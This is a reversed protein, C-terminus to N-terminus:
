LDEYEFGGGECRPHEKLRKIPYVTNNILSIENSRPMQVRFEGIPYDYPVARNERVLRDDIRVVASMLSNYSIIDVVNEVARTNLQFRLHENMMQFNEPLKMRVLRAAIRGLITVDWKTFGGRGQWQGELGECSVVDVVLPLAVYFLWLYSNEQVAYIDAGHFKVTVQRTRSPLVLRGAASKALDYIKDAAITYAGSPKVKGGEAMERLKLMDALKFLFDDKDLSATVTVTGTQEKGRAPKREVPPYLELTSTGNSGTTEGAGGGYHLKRLDARIPRLYMGQASSLPNGATLKQKLSWRLTYGALPQSPPIDLGALNFCAITQNPLTSDFRATATLKVHKDREGPQHKFHTVGGRDDNLDLQVGLYLLLLALVDTGKEYVGSARDFARQGKPGLMDKVSDKYTSTIVEKLLDAVQGGQQLRDNLANCPNATALPRHAAFRFPPITRIAADPAREGTRSTFHAILLVVQIPDLDIADPAAGAFLLQDRQAALARVAAGAVQAEFPAAAAKGWAGLGALLAPAPLPEDTVGIEALLAAIDEVPYRYGERVARALSPVFEAYTAADALVYRDPLAIM